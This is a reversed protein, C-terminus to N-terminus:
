VRPATVAQAWLPSVPERGALHDIAGLLGLTLLLALALAAARHAPRTNM